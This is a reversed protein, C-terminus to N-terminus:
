IQEKLSYHTEFFVSIVNNNGIRKSDYPKSARLMLKSNWDILQPRWLHLYHMIKEAIYMATCGTKNGALDEIVQVECRIKSFVPGPVNTIIEDPTPPLILIALGLSGSLASGSISEIDSPKHTIISIPRFENIGNLYKELCSQLKELIGESIM